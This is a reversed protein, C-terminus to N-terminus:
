SQRNKEDGFYRLWEEVDVKATEEARKGGPKRGFRSWFDDPGIVSAGADRARRALERDATVVIVERPHRFRAIERVIVDDAPESGSERISLSGLSSTREGAGDFFVIARAKTARLRDAIEALFAKRDEESPRGTGRARGILNNGDLFYPV